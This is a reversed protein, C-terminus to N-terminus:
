HAANEPPPAPSAVTPLGAFTQLWTAGTWPREDKGIAGRDVRAYAAIETLPVARTLDCPGRHRDGTWVDLWEGAPLHVDVSTAGAHAIPAVLLQEGLLYQLPHEWIAPDDPAALCLARMMPLGSAVSHDASATLYPLLRQRLVAFRRYLDLASPDGHQEAVNWPTRDRRRPREDPSMPDALGSDAGGVPVDGADFESHYQMIPCLAAMAAARAYLEVSPLPGSFGALDWGWFAVGSIGATIGASISARFGEWTSSEDGAWHCPARGAGTFGARSFVTGGGRRDGTTPDGTAPRNNMPDGTTCEDLLSTYAEAYRLAFRNNETVGRAGDHYRLEDGWAHEGGDTKFGDIGVETLLYRRKALWWAVADPNTWDPLLAGPFWWGRNRHPTGDAEAVCWGNAALTTADAAVQGADGRDTPILPIQWLLVKVGLAHLHDVMAKPDPWAGDAPHTIDALTLPAGDPRVDYRADRFVCFTSEDSWAEIVVAGVPVGLALSREVEEVVRAQTNWNNASMWPEFTWDPPRRLGGIAAVHAAVISAPTGEYLVLEVVPDSPDVTLEVRLEDPVTAGVDFWVRRSTAIHVGWHEGPTGAGGPTDDDGPAGDSGPTSVLAFPSPLYTRNGQQKYQEFVTADLRRGRQDVGDFREGFGTVHAAPDLRLALAVAVPGDDTVLWRVSGAIVRPDDGPGSTGDHANGTDDGAVGNPRAGNGVNRIALAGGAASWRAIACEFWETTGADDRFRYRLAAAAPTTLRAVVARGDGLDPAATSAAALHGADDLRDLDRLDVEDPDADDHDSADGLDDRGLTVGATAADISPTALGHEDVQLASTPVVLLAAGDGSDIEVTMPSTGTTLARLELPEGAIPQVPHRQDADVRYPHGSGLPNHRLHPAPLNM